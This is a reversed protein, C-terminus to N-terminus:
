NSDAGTKLTKGRRKKNVTVKVSKQQAVYVDKKQFRKQWQKKLRNKELTEDLVDKSELELFIDYIVEFYRHLNAIAVEREEPSLEPYLEELEKASPEYSDQSIPELKFM